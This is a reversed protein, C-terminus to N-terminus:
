KVDKGRKGASKAAEIFLRMRTHDKKGPKAEVGSVVDVGLPRVARIAERVNAPTLGGALMVPHATALAKAAQWDACKGTGGYLYPSSADVLYRAAPWAAPEPVWHRDSFRTARWVPLALGAFDQAREDGHIQLAHLGCDSAIKEVHKRTENVFVGVAKCRPLKGIMAALKAPKVARPSGAFLIFGLCDAGFELAAAADDANTLGCIKVEVSM